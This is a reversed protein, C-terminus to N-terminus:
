SECIRAIHNLYFTTGKLFRENQLIGSKIRKAAADVNVGSAKAKKPDVLKALLEANGVEQKMYAELQKAQIPPLVFREFFAVKQEISIDYSNCLNKYESRTIIGEAVWFSELKGFLDQFAEEKTQEDGSDENMKQHDM